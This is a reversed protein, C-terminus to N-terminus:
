CAKTVWLCICLLLCKLSWDLPLNTIAIPNWHLQIHRHPLHPCHYHHHHHHHWHHSETSDSCCHCCLRCCDPVQIITATAAGKKGFGEDLNLCIGGGTWICICICSRSGICVCLPHHHIGSGKKSFGEDLNLCSYLCDIWCVKSHM